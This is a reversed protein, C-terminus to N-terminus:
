RVIQYITKFIDYGLIGNKYRDLYQIQLNSLHFFLDSFKQGPTCLKIFSVYKM